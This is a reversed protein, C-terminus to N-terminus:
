FIWSLNLSFSGSFLSYGLYGDAQVEQNNVSNSQPDMFVLETKDGINYNLSLGNRFAVGLAFNKAFFYDAGILLNGGVGFRTSSTATVRSNYVLPNNIYSTNTSSSNLRAGLEYGIFGQINNLSKRYETGWYYSLSIRSNEFTRQQLGTTSNVAVSFVEDHFGSMYIRHTRTKEDEVFYKYQFESGYNFNNNDSANFMNGLLNLVPELNTQLVHNGKSPLNEQASTNFYVGLACILLLLKKM